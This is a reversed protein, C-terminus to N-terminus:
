PLARRPARWGNPQKSKVHWSQPVPLSTEDPWRAVLWSQPVPLSTEDPWRVVLWSQPARLSTEDLMPVVDSCAPALPSRGWVSRAWASEFHASAASAFREVSAPACTVEILSACKALASELV